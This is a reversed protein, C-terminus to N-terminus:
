THLLPIGMVALIFTALTAVIVVIASGYVILRKGSLGALPLMQTAHLGIFHAVRLDGGTTSWHFLGLGTADSQEGGIWHSTQSALYAGAITGLVAGLMLGISAAERMANGGRQQWLRWGAFASSAVLMLSGVGMLGYMIAAFASTNNFHSAEGRSARFVMYILEFWSALVFIWTAIKVGRMKGQALSIAWALTLGHVALSLFFKAPKEWVNAGALMRPDILTLAFCFAMGIAMAVSSWWLLPSGRESDQLFKTIAFQNNM